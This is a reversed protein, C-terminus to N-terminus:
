VEAISKLIRNYRQRLAKPTNPETASAELIERCIRQLEQPSPTGTITGIITTTRSSRHHLGDINEDEKTITYVPTENQKNPRSKQYSCAHDETGECPFGWEDAWFHSVTKTAGGRNKAGWVSIPSDERRYSTESDDDQTEELDKAIPATTDIGM